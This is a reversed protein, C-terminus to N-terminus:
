YQKVLKPCISKLATNIHTDTLYSYLTDCMFRNLSSIHLLDWNFRKQLDKVRESRPFKGTEYIKVINPNKALTIEIGVKLIELHEPKIKM